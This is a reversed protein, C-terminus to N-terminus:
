AGDFSPCDDAIKLTDVEGVSIEIALAAGEFGKHSRKEATVETLIERRADDHVEDNINDLDRM